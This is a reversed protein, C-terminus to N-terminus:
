NAPFHSYSSLLWWLFSSSSFRLSSTSSLLALFCSFPISRQCKWKLWSTFDYSKHLTVASIQLFSSEHVNRPYLEPAAFIWCPIWPPDITKCLQAIVYSKKMQNCVAGSCSAEVMSQLSQLLCTKWISLTFASRYTHCLFQKQQLSHWFFSVYSM